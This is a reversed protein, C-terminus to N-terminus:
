QSQSGDGKKSQQSSSSSGKKAIIPTKWPRICGVLATLCGIFSFWGGIYIAPLVHPASNKGSEVIALLGIVMMGLGICIVVIGFERM